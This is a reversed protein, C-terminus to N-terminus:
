SDALKVHRLPKSITESPELVSYKIYSRSIAIDLLTNEGGAILNSFGKGRVISFNVATTKGCKRVPHLRMEEEM